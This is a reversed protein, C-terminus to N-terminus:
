AGSHPGGHDVAAELEPDGTLAVEEEVPLPFAV